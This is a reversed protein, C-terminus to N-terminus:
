FHYFTISTDLSVMKTDNRLFTCSSQMGSFVYMYYVLIDFMEYVPIQICEHSILQCMLILLM